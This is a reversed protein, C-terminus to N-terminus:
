SKVGKRSDLFVIAQAETMEFYTLEPYAEDPGVETMFQGYWERAQPLSVLGIRGGAGIEISKSLAVAILVKGVYKYKQKDKFLLARNWPAVAVFDIYVLIKGHQNALKCAHNDTNVLLVGQLQNDCNLTFISYNLLEDVGCIKKKWDWHRDQLQLKALEEHLEKLNGTERYRQMLPKAREDIVPKWEDNIFDLQEKSVGDYLSAMHYEGPNGALLDLVQAEGIKQM